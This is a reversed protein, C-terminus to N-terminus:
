QEGFHILIEEVSQEPFQESTDLWLGIKPTVKRFDMYLDEVTFSKKNKKQEYIEKLRNIKEQRDEADFFCEKLSCEKGKRYLCDVCDKKNITM